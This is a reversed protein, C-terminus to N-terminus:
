RGDEPFKALVMARWINTQPICKDGGGRMVILLEGHQVYPLRWRPGVHERVEFM